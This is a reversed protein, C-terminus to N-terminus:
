FYIIILVIFYIITYIRFISRYVRNEFSKDRNPVSFDEKSSGNALKRAFILESIILPINPGVISGILIFLKVPINTTFSSFIAGIGLNIVILIIFYKINEYIREWSQDTFKSTKFFNYIAKEHYVASMNREDLKNKLCEVMDGINELVVTLRINGNPHKIKLWGGTYKISPFKLAIIHEYPIKVEHKSNNYILGEETLIVNINKFRKYMILYIFLFELSVSVFIAVGVVLFIIATTITSIGKITSMMAVSSITYILLYMLSITLFFKAPERLHKRYIYRKELNNGGKM